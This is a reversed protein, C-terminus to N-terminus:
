MRVVVGLSPTRETSVHPRMWTVGAAARRDGISRWNAPFEPDEWPAGEVEGEEGEGGTSGAGAESWESGSWYRSCFM